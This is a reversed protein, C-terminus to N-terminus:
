ERCSARGIKTTVGRGVLWDLAPDSLKGDVPRAVQTEAPVGSLNQLLDTGLARQDELDQGLGSNLMSSLTPGSFPTAITGVDRAAMVRKLTDLFTAATAAGDEGEAVQTGDTRTYGDAVDQAQQVLSPTIVLSTTLREHPHALLAQDLAAIPAGIQGGQGVTSLSDPFFPDQLRGDAAFPITPPLSLNRLASGGNNTADVSIKLLPDELTSWPSQRVLHM